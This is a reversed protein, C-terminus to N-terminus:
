AEHLQSTESCRHPSGQLRAPFCPHIAFQTFAHNVGECCDGALWRREELSDIMLIGIIRNMHTLCLDMFTALHTICQQCEENNIRVTRRYGHSRCPTRVPLPVRYEQGSFHLIGIYTIVTNPLMWHEVSDHETTLCM